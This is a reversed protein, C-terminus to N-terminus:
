EQQQGASKPKLHQHKFNMSTYLTLEHLEKFLGRRNNKNSDHQSPRDRLGSM